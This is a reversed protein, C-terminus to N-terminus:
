SSRSTTWSRKRKHLYLKLLYSVFENIVIVNLRAKTESVYEGLQAVQPDTSPDASTLSLLSFTQDLWKLEQTLNAQEDLLTREMQVAATINVYAPRDGIEPITKSALELDLKHCEDELM